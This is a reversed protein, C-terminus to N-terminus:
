KESTAVQRQVVPGLQGPKGDAIVLYRQAAKVDSQVIQRIPGSGSM